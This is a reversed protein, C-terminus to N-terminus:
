AYAAQLFARITKLIFSGKFEPFVEFHPEDVKVPITSKQADELLM